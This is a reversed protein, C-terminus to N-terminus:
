LCTERCLVPYVSGRPSHGYGMKYGLIEFDLM